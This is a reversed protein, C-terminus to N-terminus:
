CCAKGRTQKVRQNEQHERIMDTRDLLAELDADSIAEEKEEVVGSHDHSKLLDWLEEPSLPKVDPTYDKMIGSKFKGKHIIMKELKRKGAAREVIKQDITDKTVFRYVVVPKTQGIRHCRDQAQLDNQPNWDSDYIIVTDAGVLNIGLGGARTSLLFVWHDADTNFLEMSIQRDEVKTSGDLRCFTIHRYYLYDEIIDLMKTMQSFILVKHGHKKLAPLMKDLLLMKGSKKVLEENVLFQGSPDLPYELLYPHNCCKRLDMWVSGLKVNVISSQCGPGNYVAKSVSKRAGRKPRGKADYEIDLEQEDRHWWDDMNRTQVKDLLTKDVAAEYFERQVKTLPAYVILEKKPPIDLDVDAKVRRLMFPTLIQHLMSLINKKKEEEIIAADAAADSIVSVDFWTEFSGLDDFIEPLLFNLLSWLEKLNNQLPTGTLLLRHTNQYLKLERILRCNLNKLRHGEDVIMYTWSYNALQPRDIMAIEYSTIVVPHIEIGPLVETRKRIKRALRVREEKSGHYLIVPLRPAFRRFENHWNPVTSLPAVVIYPGQAGMTVIQCMLAVCQITKGLGMEDALIGNVGNEFLIKLWNLGEVQYRRLSGGTLLAPRTITGDLEIDAEGSFLDVSTPAAKKETKPQMQEKEEEEEGMDLKRKKTPKFFQTLLRAGEPSQENYNNNKRKRGKKSKSYLPDEEVLFTQDSVRPVLTEGLYARLCEEFDQLVPIENKHNQLDAENGIHRSSLNEKDESLSQPTAASQLGPTAPPSLASSLRSKSVPARLSLRSRTQRGSTSDTSTQSSTISETPKESYPLKSDQTQDHNEGKQQESKKQEEKVQKRLIRERRKKEDEKQREMRQLLYETYMNSKMLLVQLRKYREERGDQEMHLWLEKRKKEEEEEKQEAEKELRSEEDIEGQTILQGQASMDMESDTQLSTVTLPSDMNRSTEYLDSGTKSVADEDPITAEDSLPKLPSGRVTGLDM